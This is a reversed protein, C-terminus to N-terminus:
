NSASQARVFNIIDVATKADNLVETERERSVRPEDPNRLPLAVLLYMIDEDHIVQQFCFVNLQSINLAAVVLVVTLIMSIKM